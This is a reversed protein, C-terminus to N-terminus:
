KSKTDFIGYHEGRVSKGFFYCQTVPGICGATLMKERRVGDLAWCRRRSKYAAAQKREGSKTIQGLEQLARVVSPKAEEKSLLNFGITAAWVDAACDCALSSGCAQRPGVACHHGLEHSMAFTLADLGLAPHFILGGFLDVTPIRKLVSAQANVATITDIVRIQINPFAARSIEILRSVTQLRQITRNQHVIDLRLEDFIVQQEGCCCFGFGVIM